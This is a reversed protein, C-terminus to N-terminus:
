RPRNTSKSALFGNLGAFIRGRSDGAERSIRNHVWTGRLIQRVSHIRREVEPAQHRLRSAANGRLRVDTAM